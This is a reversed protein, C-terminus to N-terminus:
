GSDILLLYYLLLPLAEQAWGGDIGLEQSTQKQSPWKRATGARPM